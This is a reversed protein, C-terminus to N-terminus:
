ATVMVGRYPHRFTSPRLGMGAAGMPTQPRGRHDQTREYGLHCQISVEDAPDTGQVLVVQSPEEDEGPAEQHGPVALFLHFSLAPALDREPLLQHPTAAPPAGATGVAGVPVGVPPLISSEPRPVDPLTELIDGPHGVVPRGRLLKM